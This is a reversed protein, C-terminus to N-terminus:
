KVLVMKNTLVSRLGADGEGRVDIRCFYVGTALGNPVFEVTQYGEDMEENQLINAVQQGLINYVAVTVSSPELLRFSVTTSPNFPNPYNQYLKAAVPPGDEFAEDEYDEESETAETTRALHRIVAATDRKLFPVDELEVQGNLLLQGGANFLFTDVPTLFARNIDYIADYLDSYLSEDTEWWRTLATDTMAAIAVISKEDCPHGDNEYLLEGFGPPTKGLQSAAINFKLAVQEAFLANNHKKPPLLLLQRVLPRASEDPYGFYDFGRPDADHVGTRDELTKQLANSNKGVNKRADWKTLRIWAMADASDKVPKWGTATVPYMYSVGVRMGGAMDSETAGPQFGGQYVVETILNGWNPMEHRYRRAPKWYRHTAPNKAIISDPPLTVYVDVPEFTVEITHDETVDEFTYSTVDGESVSDVSVDLVDFGRDGHMVFTVDSGYPVGVAGSPTISGNAGATAVITFMDVSFWARIVHNAAVAYFTYTTIVGQNVGDVVVSDIHHGLGPTITFTVNAGYSAGVAGPPAIAGGSDALATITYSNVSLYATITHPGTVGTFTYATWPGQNVGDVVLSDLHYGPDPTVSFAQSAGHAVPVSGAPSISGNGVVTATITYMTVSFYATIAHSTDVGTFSYSTLVGLNVGDVVVSDCHSGSDPTVTFMQTGGYPVAVTDAPSIQGTGVALAVIPFMDVSFYAAITHNGTVSLFVYSALAGQNVGDVLVSDCHFGTDATVTFTQSAGETVVVAGSPTISGGPGATATITDVNVSAYAAITHPGTVGTFGYSPVPGADAGDVVVSDLHWGPAASMTFTTDGGWPVTVSGSPTISGSGTFTALITFTDISFWAAITHNSSVATFNHSTVPGLNVGDVVLSDVHHNAAPLLTFTTDAGYTVGVAGTPTITGGGSATATITYINISFWAAITHNSDIAPFTYGPLPGLNVGDVVVSDCHHGPDPTITYTQSSGYPLTTTGPPAITGNGSASATLTYTNVSFYATIAHNATVGTFPYSAIAGQNVGDVVVSDIHSGSDPTMTFTQSGGSLVGVSGSPAITGTGFAAATITFGAPEGVAFESFSTVGTAQTSTSTRTGTSTGFWTGGTNRGVIFNGTAAGGDVDGPVFTFTPDYTTFALGADKTLTWYRNVSLAPNIGSTGLGPHDGATTSAAVSGPTTVAFNALEVPTYNLADGIPYTFSQTGAGYSKELTGVVHGSTRAAFAGTGLALRYAGTAVLGSTLTLGQTVAVDNALTLTGGSKAVLLYDFSGVGSISQAGPGNFFVARNNPVFTGATLTLNGGVYLDGSVANLLISGSTITVDGTVGRDTAPLTVSTGNLITISRPVGSGVGGTGTWESSVGYSGGSAYVLSATGAYVPAPSVYGGASIQVTGGLTLNGANTVGASTQFTGSVTRTTNMQVGGTNQVTVNTIPDPWYVADSNVGYPGTTTNFVLTGTADYAYANTNGGWGGEEIRFSGGNVAIAGAGNITGATSLTGNVLADTGAGDAITFTVGGNVALTAGAAVTLQDAAVSATVTVTHPSRVTITGDASTPTSAAAGWSTGNDLSVEWTAAADWAGSGASRYLAPGYPTLSFDDVALGDDAGSANFDSWRIWFTAGAGISLGTLTSSKSTRYAAANGDRAGATGSTDKTTFHLAPYSTWTGTTLSTANTSFQFTLTDFRNRTGLRWEEGMYSIALSTITAGTNNTFSAGITPILSGSQLGGFAREAASTAGYSYTEGSTGAGNDATYTTNANTGSESLVWGTPLTSSTGSSALTNFDQLYPSGPTTLSVQAAAMSCLLFGSLSLILVRARSASSM